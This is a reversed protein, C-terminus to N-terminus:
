PKRTRPPKGGVIEEGESASFGETEDKPTLSLIVLADHLNEVGGMENLVLDDAFGDQKWEIEEGSGQLWGTELSRTTESTARYITLLPEGSPGSVVAGPSLFRLYVTSGDADLGYEPTDEAGMRLMRFAPMVSLEALLRQAIQETNASM